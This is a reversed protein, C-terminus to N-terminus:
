TYYIGFDKKKRDEEVGFVINENCTIAKIEGCKGCYGAMWLPQNNKVSHSHEKICKLCWQKIDRDELIAPKM